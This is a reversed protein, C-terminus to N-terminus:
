AGRAIQQISVSQSVTQKYYLELTASPRQTVV